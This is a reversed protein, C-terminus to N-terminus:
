QKQRVKNDCSLSVELFNLYEQIRNRPDPDDYIDRGILLFDAGQEIASVPSSYKQGLDDKESAISIGPIFTFHTPNRTLKTQAVFGIVNEPFQHALNVVNNTYTEDILNGESSMEAVIVIGIDNRVQIISEITGTGAIAHVTVIDAWDAIKTPGCFQKKVTNGIDCFKKDEMLLFNFHNAWWQLQVILNDDFDVVIDSHIKLISIYEGVNKIMKVIDESHTLDLSLCIKSKRNYQCLKRGVNLHFLEEKLVTDNFSVDFRYVFYLKLVMERDIKGTRFLIKVIDYVNVVPIYNRCTYDLPSLYTFFCVTAITNLSHADLKKQTDMVSGGTTIVDEVIICSQGKTFVGEITNGKGHSKIEKRVMISPVNTSTSIFITFPIGGLPVGCLLDVAHTEQIKQINRNMLNACKILLSPYSVLKRLDIYLPSTEGNRLKFLGTEIVKADYLEVILDDLQSQNDM